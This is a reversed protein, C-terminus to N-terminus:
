IIVGTCAPESYKVRTKDGCKAGPLREPSRQPLLQFLIPSPFLVPSSTPNAEQKFQWACQPSGALMMRKKKWAPLAQKQQSLHGGRPGTNWHFHAEDGTDPNPTPEPQDLGTSGLWPGNQGGLSM